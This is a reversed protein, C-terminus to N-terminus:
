MDEYEKFVTENLISNVDLQLPDAKLTSDLEEPISQFFAKCFLREIAEAFCEHIMWSRNYHKGSLVGKIGGSTCLGAQHVVEEFGSGTVLKGITGFFEMMAHFDGLHIIVDGFEIPNNWVVHYFKQAAGADVSIHAYKMNAARSLRQSQHICEIVTSYETIPQRIPPLFTIRTPKSNPKGFVQVIWGVFRAIKQPASCVRRMLQWILLLKDANSRDVEM